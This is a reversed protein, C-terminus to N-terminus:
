ETSNTMYFIKIRISLKHFVCILNVTMSEGIYSTFINLLNRRKKEIKIIHINFKLPKKKAKKKLDSYVFTQCDFLSFNLVSQVV